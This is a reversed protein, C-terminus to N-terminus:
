IIWYHSCLVKDKFSLIINIITKIGLIHIIILVIGFLCYTSSNVITIHINLPTIQLNLLKIITFELAIVNYEM